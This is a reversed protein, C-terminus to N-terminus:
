RMVEKLTKLNARMISIYSDKEIDGTEVPNLARTELGLDRAIVDIIKPSFQPESFIVKIGLKKIIRMVEAIYRPSPEKGPFEEIVAAQNLGYRKAFYQFSPHFTIFDKKSFASAERKIEEDLKQLSFIYDAANRNYFEANKLDKLILAGRINEVQVIANEPDLWIHPDEGKNYKDGDEEKYNENEIKINEASKLFSAGRSTDVVTIKKNDSTQILKDLTPEFGVGNKIIIDANNIKKIDAPSFSSVEPTQSFLIDVVARDKVINKTFDYLPFFTTIIKLRNEDAPLTSKKEMIFGDRFFWVAFAALVAGSLFLFLKKFFSLKDM